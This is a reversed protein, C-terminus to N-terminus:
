SAHDPAAETPATPAPAIFAEPYWEELSALVIEAARRRGVQRLLVKGVFAAVTATSGPAKGRAIQSVYAKSIGWTSCMARRPMAKVLGCITATMCGLKSDAVMQRLGM